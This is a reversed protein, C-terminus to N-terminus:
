WDANHGRTDIHTFTPYEGVGGRFLGEARLARAAQAVAHAPVAFVLDLAANRTHQSHPAAGPCQANYEPSRYASVVLRVPQRLKEVLADAVRLTPPLNNWLEIPPLHNAVGGRVKAHAALIDSVALHRLGASALFDRYERFNPLAALDPSRLRDLLSRWPLHALSGRHLVAWGAGAGAALALGILTRRSYRGLRPSERYEAPLSAASEALEAETPLREAAPESLSAPRSAPAPPPFDPV